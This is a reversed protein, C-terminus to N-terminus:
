DNYSWRKEVGTGDQFRDSEVQALMDRTDQSGNESYHIHNHSCHTHLKIYALCHHTNM